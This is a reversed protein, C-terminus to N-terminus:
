LGASAEEVARQRQERLMKLKQDIQDSLATAPKETPKAKEDGSVATSPSGVQSRRQALAGELKEQWSAKGPSEPTGAESSAAPTLAGLGPRSPPRPSTSVGQAKRKAIVRLQAQRLLEAKRPDLDKSISLSGFVETPSTEQEPPQEPPSSFPGEM